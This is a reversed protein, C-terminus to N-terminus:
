LANAADARDNRQCRRELVARSPRGQTRHRALVDATWALDRPLAALFGGDAPPLQYFDGLFITNIGGFPRVRGAEDKTWERGKPAAAQLRQQEIFALLSASVMSIEDVILWRWNAIRKATEDSM